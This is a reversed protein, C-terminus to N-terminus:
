ASPTNAQVAAALAESSANLADVEAQVPALEEATAGNALAADVAAQVRAAIGNILSTASDMITTSESVERSLEGLVPNPM